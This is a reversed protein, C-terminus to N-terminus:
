NLLQQAHAVASDSVEKGGLMQAIELVREENSLKKLATVTTEGIDEKYVKFHSQGKAAIQPLHTISFVQMSLSMQEMISAMKHAIEGSVGTDIEDFMITPLQQYNSLISKIALMIRSLEGGSAAKKLPLFQSGKNATFLFDLQDKGNYLYTESQILEIKFRANPMGLDTLITELQKILKLVESKRRKHIVSAATDLQKVQSELANEAAIIAAELSALSDVKLELESQIDILAQVSNVNHKSFLDHVKKLITDIESLRSPNIDLKSQESEIENFIDDLEISISQIRDSLSQYTSSIHTLKHFVQKLSILNSATGLDESSIIQNALTLEAQILEVNNLTNYEVELLELDISQLNDEILENLLFTHYDTDNQSQLKSANLEVLKKQTSKYTKLLHQYAEISTDNQALADLVHFQFDDNILEQTQQQSHIDILQEGLGALLSLNVPSDNIFARSKGSPLIERRLITISEFDLDNTKFFSKLNFYEINFSAEIICKRSLDNIQSFDVRKGLVLALGGLLVSKGAGTEGTITSFGSDFQVQLADILAYNKISLESLM